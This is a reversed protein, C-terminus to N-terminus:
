CCLVECPPARGSHSILFSGFVFGPSSASVSGAHLRFCSLDTAEANIGSRSQPPVAVVDTTADPAPAFNTTSDSFAGPFTAPEARSFSGHGDNLFVAIPQKLGASTLVLDVTQDGNVDRAAIQLGGIPAVVQLSQRGAETLQLQIRYDTFSSDARGAQVNALDLRHDGDFDAIAFSPGPGISTVPSTQVDAGPAAAASGGSVGLFLLLALAPLFLRRVTCRAAFSNKLVALLRFKPAIDV